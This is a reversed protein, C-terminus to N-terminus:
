LNQPVNNFKNYMENFVLNQIDDKVKKMIENIKENVENLVVEQTSLRTTSDTSDEMKKGKTKSSNDDDLNWISVVDYNVDKYTQITDTSKEEFDKYIVGQDDKRKQYWEQFNKPQGLYYIYKTEPEPNTFHIHRLAEYEAIFNAQHKLLIQRSKATVDEYVGSMFAILMNQLVLVLFVSAIFTYIDVAWFDFEDRQIWNDSTWFYTAMIAESFSTFPNDSSTPDFDSKLKINLLEDTLSNTVVGSYTSDKTRINAPNKLLAIMTHAFALIVIAMFTFFPFIKKFVIIVHYIYIGIVPILRLYLILEIWVLFIAFSIAVILGNNIEKVSGFGDSFQFNKLMITMITVAFVISIVDFINFIESFYKKPGRHQFQFAETILQYISLHYFVIILIFLFNQNIITSHDLYAWSVVWFCIAFVLFRIFFSFFFFKAKEWQFSIVAEIAPNGYIVDNECFITRAFPSLLNKEDRSIKYWRPIFLFLFIKLLIRFFNYEEKKEGIRNITFSPLPVVRFAFPSIVPSTVLEFKKSIFSKDSRLKVIEFARFETNHIRSTLYETPINHTQGAFCEKSFLRKVYDDYNYKFLLPLARSVTSMWGAYDTAHSSYYELLYAVVVTDKLERGKYRYIALEMDNEPRENDELVLSNNNLRLDDDRLFEKGPWSVSRPIHRIVFEEKKENGNDKNIIDFM